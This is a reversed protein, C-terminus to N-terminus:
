RAVLLKTLLKKVFPSLVSYHFQFYSFLHARFHGLLYNFDFLIVPSHSERISSAIISHLCVALDTVSKAKASLTPGYNRLYAFEHVGTQMRYHPFHFSQKYAM